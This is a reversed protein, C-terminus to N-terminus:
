VLVGNVLDFLRELPDLFAGVPNTFQGALRDGLATQLCDRPGTERDLSLGLQLALACQSLAPESHQSRNIGDTDGFGFGFFVLRFLLWFLFFLKMARSIMVM